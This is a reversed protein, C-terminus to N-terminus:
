FPWLDRWDWGWNVTRNRGLTEVVSGKNYSVNLYVLLLFSILLCILLVRKKKKM